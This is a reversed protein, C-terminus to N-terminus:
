YRKALVSIRGKESCISCDVRTNKLELDFGLLAFESLEELAEACKQTGCWNVLYMKDHELNHEELYNKFSLETLDQIQEDYTQAIKNRLDKSITRLLASIKETLRKDNLKLTAKTLLDRRTVTIERVQFENNGIEFRLPIGM